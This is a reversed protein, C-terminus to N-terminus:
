GAASAILGVGSALLVVLVIRDFGQDGLRGYITRGLWVGCMTCPVAVLAHGALESTVIGAAVQSLFAFGLITLNFAQFVARRADKGWGRLGAWLTPLPGSLGALGGMVGGGLGIAADAIRGGWSIEYRARTALMVSCYCILFLGIAVKFTQPSVHALLFAGAPVGALGGAVFPLVRRMDM